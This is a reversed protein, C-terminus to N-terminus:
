IDSAIAIGHLLISRQEQVNIGNKGPSSIWSLVVEDRTITFFRCAPKKDPTPNVCAGARKLDRITFRATIKRQKAAAENM